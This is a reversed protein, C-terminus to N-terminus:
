GDVPEKRFGSCVLALYQLRGTTGTDAYCAQEVVFEEPGLRDGRARMRWRLQLRDGVQGITADIVECTDLDGFFRDFAGCVAERGEWEDFGRPLLAHLKVDPELAVGLQEFDGAALKELFLGAAAFQPSAPAQAETM